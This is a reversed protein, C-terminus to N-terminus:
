HKVVTVGVAHQFCRNQPVINKTVGCLILAEENMASGTPKVGHARIPGPAQRNCAHLVTTIM